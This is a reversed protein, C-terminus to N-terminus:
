IATARMSDSILIVRDKGLMKYLACIAGKHIHTGDCIVQAYINKEVAAGILGPKRHHLPPMANFTHTLCSAGKEIACGATDYDADTHGLSVVAKCKEIFEAAGSLEPAVTVMKINKITNFEDIDPNKIYAENQAGKYKASIYPGELHFGIVRAGEINELPIDTVRKINEIPATMTTPLFSTTGQEAELRAIHPIADIDMTDYGGCGHLHIDFLGPYVKLGTCDIGDKQSKGVLTIKGNEIEIDIVKDYLRLNKYVTM